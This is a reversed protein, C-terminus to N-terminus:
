IREEKASLHIKGPLGQFWLKSEFVIREVDLRLFIYSM